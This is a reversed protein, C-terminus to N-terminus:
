KNKEKTHGNWAVWGGARVGLYISWRKFWNLGLVELAELLINDSKFRTYTQQQYLYDHLVFGRTARGIPSIIGWLPKPVSGFDTMMGMPVEIKEGSGVNGVEYDMEELVMWLDGDNMLEVKLPELFQSM